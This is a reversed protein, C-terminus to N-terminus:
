KFITEDGRSDVRLSELKEIRQQLRKRVPTAIEHPQLSENAISIDQNTTYGDMISRDSTNKMM